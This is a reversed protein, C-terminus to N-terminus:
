NVRGYLIKAYTRMPDEHYFPPYSALMEFLLIGMTWWDVAMGHGAGSIIEPALYDPVGCLTYTQDSIIKAFGFDIIKIYGKSDLLINEPRLDRYVIAKSHMYDLAMAISAVYFRATSEDFVTRARLITFLEGGLVIELLFCLYKDSNYTQYLKVIFPSDLMMM